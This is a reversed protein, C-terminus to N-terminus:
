KSTKDSELKSKEFLETAKIFEENAERLQRKEDAEKELKWRRLTDRWFIVLYSGGVFVATTVILLVVILLAIRGM